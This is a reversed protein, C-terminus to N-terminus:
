NEFCVEGLGKWDDFETRRDLMVELQGPRLNGVGLPQHALLSVRKTADEVFVSGAMPYFNGELPLRENRRRRIMKSSFYKYKPLSDRSFFVQFGNLDSYFNDEKISPVDIHMAIECNEDTLDNNHLAKLSERNAINVVNKIELTSSESELVVQQTIIDNAAASSM